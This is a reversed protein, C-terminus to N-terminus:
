RSRYRRSFWIASVITTGGLLLGTVLAASQFFGLWRANPSALERLLLLGISGTYGFADALYILFGANGPKDHLTMIRDFLVASFPAYALYIGTGVAIMWWLPPLLGAAFLITSLALVVAGALVAAHVAIVAGLNNRVLMVGALGILVFVTVPIESLSFIAPSNAYGLQRWLEPSFNDRFDRLASLATYGSVLMVIPLLHRRVYDRRQMRSMPGRVGREARDSADPPPVNALVAMGVVLLPVFVLGTMAPMWYSSVGHAEILYSGVSKTVGSSLIFSATLITALVESMRRGELYSFVLGWIMGLSLGNVFLFAPGFAPPCLAFGLLALWSCGILAFITHARREPRSVSIVHVGIIKSLAYGLAQAIVLSAKYGLYGITPAVHSFTAVTIPKRFAYMAFYVCFAALGAGLLRKRSAM